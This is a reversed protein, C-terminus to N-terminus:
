RKRYIRLWAGPACLDAPMPEEHVLDFRRLILAHIDYGDDVWGFQEGHVAPICRNDRNVVLFAAGDQLVDAIVHIHSDPSYVHQLVWIAIASSAFLNGSADDLFQPHAIAFCPDDVYAMAHSLMDSSIDVGLVIRTTAVLERSLRGIGCGYDIVLGSPLKQLFPRLFATEREWREDPTLGCEPTLIIERARQLDPQDFIAPHYTFTM